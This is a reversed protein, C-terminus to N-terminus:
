QQGELVKVLSNVVYDVDDHTMTHFLPLSLIRNYYTDSGPLSIEGYLNRYYPQRHVPIYHVQTGVGRSLLGQMLNARTIEVLDFDILVACLHWAPKCDSMAAIPRVLPGLPELRMKYHEMLASRKKLFLSLKKLQSLGLSCHLASARFNYGLEIMEYYWPNPEGSADFAQSILKFDGPARTMGVNRLIKLREALQDDNTTIAGGEGMAVTKVPHFSFTSLRSNANSGVPVHSGEPGVYTAGIAHCADEVLDFGKARAIKAIANMDVTQGNIHVPFVARVRDGANMLAQELTNATLLGNEPDVDAFFVRAGVYQVANATSLFTTSPVVVVDKPKLDMVLAVLHLAASGSSVAVAYRAGTVEAFEKEFEEIVPGTTLFDSRLVQTVSDIDEDDIYHRGYPLFPRDPPM